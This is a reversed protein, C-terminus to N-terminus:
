IRSCHPYTLRKVVSLIKRPPPPHCHEGYSIIAMYKTTSIGDVFRPIFFHFMVDCEHKIINGHQRRSLGPISHFFHCKAKNSTIEVKCIPMCLMVSHSRHFQLDDTNCLTLHVKTSITAGLLNWGKWSIQIFLVGKKDGCNFFPLQIM